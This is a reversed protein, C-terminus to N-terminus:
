TWNPKLHPFLESVSRMFDFIEWEGDEIPDSTRYMHICAEVLQSLSEFAISRADHINHKIICGNCPASVAGFAYGGDSRDTLFLFTPSLPEEIGLKALPSDQSHRFMEIANSIPLLSSYPILNVWIDSVGNAWTYLDIADPTIEFPIKEIAAEVESRSLGVNLVRDLVPNYVKIAERFDALLEKM